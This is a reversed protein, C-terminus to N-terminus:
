RALIFFGHGVEKILRASLDGLSQVLELGHHVLKV